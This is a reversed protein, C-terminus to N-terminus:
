SFLSDFNYIQLEGSLIKSLVSMQIQVNFPKQFENLCHM